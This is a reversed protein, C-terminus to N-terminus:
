RGIKEAELVAQSLNRLKNYAVDRPLLRQGCDPSVQIIKDGFFHLGRNIHNVIEQVSEIRADDSRVSGLCIKQPFSYEKFADFLSPVGKFEHSLIDVPMELIQPLVRTIDGCVHLITPCTVNRTIIEIAEKCYPPIGNSFFPEDISIIDVYKQLELLEQKLAQAFDLTVEKEDGYFLDQSSQALTYPGTIVGKLLKNEPILSRVYRQDDIIIPGKYEIKGVIETRDRIRCGKLKRTFIQVFPDRTQGDSLIHVGAKIMDFVADRIYKKWSIQEGSFYSRMLELPDPLIPYSGVVSVKL